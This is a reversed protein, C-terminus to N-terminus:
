KRKRAPQRFASMDMPPWNPYRPYSDSGTLIEFVGHGIQGDWDFRMLQDISMSKAELAALQKTNASNWAVHQLYEGPAYMKLEANPLPQGYYVGVHMHPSDATVSFTYGDEDTFDLVSRTPRKYGGDFDIQHDIKVIRKSLTGDTYTVGGDCYLVNGDRDEMVWAQIARDEFGADLWLWFNLQDAARLGMTRDRGGRWGDISTREGDIQVWGTWSGSEKIHFMDVIIEGDREVYMPLLEWMPARPEYYMEWEIGSDNPALDVRWRKLPEVCTWRVPGAHLDNRDAGALRRGVLLDWHRGDALAVKAYGAASGQNPNNGYGNTLLVEGDPSHAYFYCRDSWSGGDHQVQDFPRGIQHTFSEDASSYGM